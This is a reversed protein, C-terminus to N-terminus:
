MDIPSRFGRFTCNRPKDKEGVGLKKYSVIANLYAEKHTWIKKRLDADLGLGSGLKFQVKTKLDEVELAGLTDGGRKGDKHSSRKTFGRADTTAENDNHMLEQFGIIRAEETVFRKIKLLGNEILTSRNYKYPRTPSRFIGGEYGLSLYYAEMDLVQQWNNVRTQKLLHIRVNGKDVDYKGGDTQLDQVVETLKGLREEYPKHAWAPHCYDFVYWAVPTQSGHTMLASFAHSFTLPHFPQYNADTCEGDVGMLAEDTLQEQAYASPLLLGSRSIFRGYSTGRIGDIKPSMYGPYILRAIDEETEPTDTHALMARFPKGNPQLAQFM